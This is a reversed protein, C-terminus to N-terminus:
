RYHDSGHAPILHFSRSLNVQDLPLSMSWALHHADVWLRMHELLMM